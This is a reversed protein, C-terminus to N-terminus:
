LLANVIFTFSSIKRHEILVVGDLSILPHLYLEM